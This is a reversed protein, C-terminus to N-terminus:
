APFFRARRIRRTDPAFEILGLGEAPAPGEIAFRFATAWGAAVPAEVRLRSGAPLAGLLTGATARVAGLEVAAADDAFLATVAGADRAAIANALEGLVRPGRGGIGNWLSALYGAVWSLGMVRLMRGFLLTMALWARPGLRMAQLSLQALDWYAAMRTVQLGGAGDGLQYLIYASVDISLAANVRTHIIADRFVDRGLFHDRRIEFRIEHPAIFADWFRGLTGGAKAAPPSGVPDEIFADGTFLALWRERDHALVLEPSREVVALLEQPTPTAPLVSPLPAIKEHPTPNM